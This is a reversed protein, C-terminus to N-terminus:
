KVDKWYAKDQYSVAVSGMYRSQSFNVGANYRNHPPLNLDAITFNTGFGLAKIDKRLM